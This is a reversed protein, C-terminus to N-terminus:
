MSDWLKAKKVCRRSDNIFTLFRKKVERHVSRMKTYFLVVLHKTRDFNKMICFRRCQCFKNIQAIEGLELDAVKLCISIRLPAKHIYWYLPSHDFVKKLKEVANLKHKNLHKGKLCSEPKEGNTDNSCSNKRCVKTADHTNPVIAYSSNKLFKM